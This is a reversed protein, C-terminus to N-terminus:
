KRTHLSDKFDSQSFNHGRERLLSAAEAKRLMLSDARAVLKSLETQESDSLRIKNNKQMLSEACAQVDSPLQERVITWLADDSLRALVELESQEDQPLDPLMEGIDKLHRLLVEEVTQNTSYAIARVKASLDDSLSLTVSDTM